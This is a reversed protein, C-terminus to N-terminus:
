LFIHYVYHFCHRITSVNVTHQLAAHVKRGQVLMQQPITYSIHIEM